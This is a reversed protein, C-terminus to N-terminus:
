LYQIEGKVGAEQLNTGEQESYVTCASFFCPGSFPRMREM